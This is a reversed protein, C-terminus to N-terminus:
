EMLKYMYVAGSNADTVSGVALTCGLLSLRFGYLCGSCANAAKIYATQAWTM